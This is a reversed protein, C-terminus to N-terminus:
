TSPTNLEKSLKLFDIKYLKCIDGIKLNEMELKAMPCSLCPLNYKALIKGAEPENLIEALTTDKTIKM